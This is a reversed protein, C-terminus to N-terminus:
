AEVHAHESKFAVDWFSLNGQAYVPPIGAQRALHTFDGLFITKALPVMEGAACWRKYDEWVATSTLTSGEAPLLRDLAYASIRWGIHESM